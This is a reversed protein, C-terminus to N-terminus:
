AHGKNHASVKQTWGSRQANKITAPHPIKGYAKEADTSIIM